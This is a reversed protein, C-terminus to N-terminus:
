SGLAQRERREHVGQPGNHCAHRRVLEVYHQTRCACLQGPLQGLECSVPRRTRGGVREAGRLQHLQHEAHQHPERLLLRQHEDHLVQVPGVPGGEVQQGKEHLRKAARPDQQDRGIAAVLQM